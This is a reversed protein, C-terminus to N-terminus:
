GHSGHANTKALIIWQLAFWGMLGSYENSPSISFSIFSWYKPRMILLASENSFVRISPFMSALLLLLCCLILRNSPMVSEVAMCNLETCRETMGSEKCGRPSCCALSGQGDAVGLAWESEHRKLQHHRETMEDETMGKEERRWDKGSVTDKGTLWNKANHPWLIPTEAEADTM